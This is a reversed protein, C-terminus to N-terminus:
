SASFSTKVEKQRIEVFEVYLGWVAGGVRVRLLLSCPLLCESLQGLVHLPVSPVSHPLWVTFESSHLPRGASMGLGARCLHRVQADPATFTERAPRLRFASASVMCGGSSRIRSPLQWLVPCPQAQLHFSKVDPSLQRRKQQHFSLAM